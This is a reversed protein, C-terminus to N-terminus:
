SAKEWEREMHKWENTQKIDFEFADKMFTAARYNAARHSVGEDVMMMALNCHWSWAYNPDNKFAAVIPQLPSAKKDNPEYDDSLEEPENDYEFVFAATM